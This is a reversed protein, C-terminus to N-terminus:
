DSVEEVLAAAPRAHKGFRIEPLLFASGILILGVSIWGLTIPNVGSVMYFAVAPAIVGRVGTFFTHVSMYEAVREPPAFKTVWLSWAVDAGANSIGFFVAGAVLGPLSGGSFFSLIGLAFGANLVIRLTFFNMRDFLRGWLPNLILRAINPIVSTFLAVTGATLVEGNLRVGYRPNALYEVRLPAMMLMAFGLFM